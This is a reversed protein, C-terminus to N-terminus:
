LSEQPSKEYEIFSEPTMPEVSDCKLDSNAEILAKLKEPENTLQAAVLKDGEKKTRLFGAVGIRRDESRWESTHKRIDDLYETANKPHFNGAAEFRVVYVDKVFARLWPDAKAPNPKVGNAGHAYADWLHFEAWRVGAKALETQQSIYIDDPTKTRTAYCLGVISIALAVTSVALSLYILAKDKM